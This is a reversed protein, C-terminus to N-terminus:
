LETLPWVNAFYISHQGRQAAQLQQEGHRRIGNPITQEDHLVSLLQGFQLWSCGTQLRIHGCRYVITLMEFLDEIKTYFALM